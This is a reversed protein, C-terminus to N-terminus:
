HEIKKSLEEKTLNTRDDLQIKFALSQSSEWSPMYFCCPALRTSSCSTGVHQIGSIDHWHMWDLHNQKWPGPTRNGPPAIYPYDPNQEVLMQRAALPMQLELVIREKLPPPIRAVVHASIEKTRGNWFNVVVKSNKFGSHSSAAEEVQLIIGPGYRQVKKEWPALVGDGPALPQWRADEYDIVDYLPTEQMQFQVKGKQSHQSREFKVLFCERSDKVKQVIHGLYYYGDTEKRALVRIGKPLNHIMLSLDMLDEKISGRLFKNPSDMSWAGMPFQTIHHSDLSHICHQKSVCDSHINSAVCGSNNEDSSVDSNLHLPQFSGGSEKAVKELMKQSDSKSQERSGVLYVVHMPHARETEKLHSCIEEVTCMPLRSSFLYVAQSIPDELAAVLPSLASAGSNIQLARIWATAEIVSTLSCKVLGNQWKYGKRTCSVINFMSDLLKSALSYLTKILVEKLISLDSPSNESVFLVFVVNREYINAVPLTGPYFYYM